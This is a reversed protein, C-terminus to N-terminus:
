EENTPRPRGVAIFSFSRNEQNGNANGTVAIAYNSNVWPFVVGDRNDVSRNRTQSGVIAPPGAFSPFTIVYMGPGQRGVWFGGSGSAITGDTNISGWLITNTDQSIAPGREGIVIFSFSRKERTSRNNGTIVTASDISLLPVVVGDTNSETLNGLNTQTAVIAPLSRFQSPFNIVYQGSKEPKPVSVGLSGGVLNGESDVLGWLVRDSPEGSDGAAMFCFSRDERVGVNNGTIATAAKEMVSSFVIGDTNFEDLNRSRTQTGVIAPLGSFGLIISYQGAAVQTVSKGGSVAEGNKDVTAWYISM